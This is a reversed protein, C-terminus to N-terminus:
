KIQLEYDQHRAVLDALAEDKKAVLESLEEV